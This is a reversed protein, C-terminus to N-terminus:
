GEMALDEHEAEDMSLEELQQRLLTQIDPRTNENTLLRACAGTYYDQYDLVLSRFSIISAAGNKQQVFLLVQHWLRIWADIALQQEIRCHSPLTPGFDEKQDDVEEEENILSLAFLQRIAVDLANGM